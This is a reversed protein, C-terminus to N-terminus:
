KKDMDHVIDILQDIRNNNNYCFNANGGMRNINEQLVVLEEKQFENHAYYNKPSDYEGIYPGGSSKRFLLHMAIYYSSLPFGLSGQSCAIDCRYKFNNNCISICNDTFHKTPSSAYQNGANWEFSGGNLKYFQIDDSDGYKVRNEWNPMKIITKYDIFPAREIKLTGSYYNRYFYNFKNLCIDNQVQLFSINSANIFKSVDDYNNGLYVNPMLTLCKEDFAGDVYSVIEIGEEAFLNKIQFAQYNKSSLYKSFGFEYLMLAWRAPLNGKQMNLEYRNDKTKELPITFNVGNKLFKDALVLQPSEHLKTKFKVTNNDNNYIVNFLENKYNLKEWFHKPAVVGKHGITRALVEKITHLSM